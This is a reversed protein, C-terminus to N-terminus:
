HIVTGLRKVSREIWPQCLKELEDGLVLSPPNPWQKVDRAYANDIMQALLEGNLKNDSICTLMGDTKPLLYNLAPKNKWDTLRLVDAGDVLGAAYLSKNTKDLDRWQSYRNIFDARATSVPLWFALAVIVVSIIKMASDEDRAPM